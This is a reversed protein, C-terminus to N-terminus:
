LEFQKKLLPEDLEVLNRERDHKFVEYGDVNLIRQVRSVFGSLRALPVDVRRAFSEQTM